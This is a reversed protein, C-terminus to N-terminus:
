KLAKIIVKERESLEWREAKEREAKEREAKKRESILYGSGFLGKGREKQSDLQRVRIKEM